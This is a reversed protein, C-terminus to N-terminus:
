LPKGLLTLLFFCVAVVPCRPHVEKFLKTRSHTSLMQSHKLSPSVFYKPREWRGGATCGEDAATCSCVVMFDALKTGLVSSLLSRWLSFTIRCSITVDSLQRWDVPVMRVVQFLHGPNGPQALRHTKCANSGATGMGQKPWLTSHVLGM